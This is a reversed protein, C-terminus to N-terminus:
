TELFSVTGHTHVQDIGTVHRKAYANNRGVM